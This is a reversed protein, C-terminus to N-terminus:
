GMWSIYPIVTGREVPILILKMYEQYSKALRFQMEEPTSKIVPGDVAISQISDNEVRTSSSSGDFSLNVEGNGHKSSAYECTWPFDCVVNGHTLNQPEQRRRIKPPLSGYDCIPSHKMGSEFQRKISAHPRKM